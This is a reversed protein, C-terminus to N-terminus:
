LVPRFRGTRGEGAIFHLRYRGIEIEDGDILPQWDVREGGIFVGNLSHDDLLVSYAGTRHVLAHRRSVTPDVLRIEAQLSRGIHTFGEPLAATEIEETTDWALHPGSAGVAARVEPLWDPAPELAPAPLGVTEGSFISAPEFSTSGCRPCPPAEDAELLTIPFRCGACKFTRAGAPSGLHSSGM